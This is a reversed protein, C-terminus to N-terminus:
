ACCVGSDDNDHIHCDGGLFLFLSPPLLPPSLRLLGVRPLAALMALTPQVFACCLSCDVAIAIRSSKSERNALGLGIRVKQASMQSFAAVPRHGARVRLPWAATNSVSLQLCRSSGSLRDYHKYM